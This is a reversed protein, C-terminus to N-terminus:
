VRVAEVGRFVSKLAGLAQDTANPIPDYCRVVSASAQAKRLETETTDKYRATRPAYINEPSIDGLRLSIRNPLVHVSLLLSIIAITAVALGVRRYDIDIARANKDSNKRSGPNFFSLHPKM